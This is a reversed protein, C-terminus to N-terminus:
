RGAGVVRGRKRRSSSGHEPKVSDTQGSPKQLEVGAKMAALQPDVERKLVREAQPDPPTLGYQAAIELRTLKRQQAFRKSEDETIPVFWPCELDLIKSVFVAMEMPVTEGSVCRSIEGPDYELNSEEKLLEALKQQSMRTVGDPARTKRNHVLAQVKKLWWAPPAFTRSRESM